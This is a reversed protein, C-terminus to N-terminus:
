ACGTGSAGGGRSVNTFGHQIQATKQFASVDLELFHPLQGWLWSLDFIIAGGSFTQQFTTTGLYGFVNCGSSLHTIGYVCICDLNNTDAKRKKTKSRRLLVRSAFIVNKIVWWKESVPYIKVMKICKTTEIKPTLRNGFPNMWKEM